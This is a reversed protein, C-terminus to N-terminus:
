ALPCHDCDWDNPNCKDRCRTCENRHTAEIQAEESTTFLDKAHYGDHKPYGKLSYSYIEMKGAEFMSGHMGDIATPGIVQHTWDDLEWEYEIGWVVQGFEFNTVLEVNM